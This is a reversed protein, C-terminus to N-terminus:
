ESADEAAEPEAPWVDNEITLMPVPLEISAGTAPMGADPEQTGEQDDTM